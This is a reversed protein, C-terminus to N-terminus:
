LAGWEKEVPKLELGETNLGASAWDVLMPIDRPARHQQIATLLAYQIHRRTAHYLDAYHYHIRVLDVEVERGEYGSVVVNGYALRDRPSMIERFIRGPGTKPNEYASPPLVRRLAGTIANNSALTLTEALLSKRAVSTLHVKDSWRILIPTTSRRRHYKEPRDVRYFQNSGWLSVERFWYRGVTPDSLLQERMSPFRADIVDDSDIGMVWDTGLENMTAEVRQLDRHVDWPRGPPNRYLRVVKPMRALIDYTDDTSGDDTAVIGDVCEALRTMVREIVHADNKTSVYGLLRM